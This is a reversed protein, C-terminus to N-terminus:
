ERGELYPGIVATFCVIIFVTFTAAAYLELHTM